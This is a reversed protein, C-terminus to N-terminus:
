DHYNHNGYQKQKRRRKTERDKKEEMSHQMYQRAQKEAKDKALIKDYEARESKYIDCKAHCGVYRDECNKCCTIRDRM